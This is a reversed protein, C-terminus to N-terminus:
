HVTMPELDGTGGFSIGAIKRGGRIARRALDDADIVRAGAEPQPLWGAPVKHTNGLCDEVEVEGRGDIREGGLGRYGIALDLDVSLTLDEAIGLLVSPRVMYRKCVADLVLAGTNSRVLPELDIATCTRTSDLVAPEVIPSLAWSQIAVRDALSLDSVEVSKDLVCTQCILNLSKLLENPQQDIDEDRIVDVAAGLLPFLLLGHGLLALTDAKRVLVVGGSPLPLRYTDYTVPM